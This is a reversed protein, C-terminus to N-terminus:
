IHMSVQPSNFTFVVNGGRNTQMAMGALTPLAQRFYGGHGTGNVLLMTISFYPAILPFM